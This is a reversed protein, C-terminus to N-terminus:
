VVVVDLHVDKSHFYSYSNDFELIYVGPEHCVHKGAEVVLHSYVREKVVVEHRGSNHEKFVGFMIDYGKTCFRWTIQTAPRNVDIRHEYKGARRVQLRRGHLVLKEVEHPDQFYSSPVEGGICIKPSFYPNGDAGVLAGGWHKPLQDPAILDRLREQWGTHGFIQIKSQTTGRLLPRVMSWAVTFVPPANIVYCVGLGEPYNAEMLRTMDLFLEFGEKYAIQAMSLCELDFIILFQNVPVGTKQSIELLQHGGTEFCWLAFKVFDTKKCSRVMGRIDMRGLCGIFLPMGTKTMGHYGRPFFDKLVAPPQWEELLQNVRHRERWAMSKRMMDAAVDVDYNRAILWSLLDIDRNYHTCCSVDSVAKKFEEFKARQQASLTKMRDTM